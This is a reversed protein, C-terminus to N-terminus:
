ECIREKFEGDRWENMKFVSFMQLCLVFAPICLFFFSGVRPTSGRVVHNRWNGLLWASQWASSLLCCSLIRKRGDLWQMCILSLCFCSFWSEAKLRWLTQEQWWVHLQVARSHLPQDDFDLCAQDVSACSSSRKKREQVVICCVISRLFFILILWLTSVSVWSFFLHFRIWSIFLTYSFSFFAVCHCCPLLTQFPFPLSSRVQWSWWM